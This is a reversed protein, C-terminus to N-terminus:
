RRGSFADSASREVGLGFVPLLGSPVREPVSLLFPDLATGPDTLARMFAVLADQEAATLGLPERLSPHLMETTVQPHRPLAGDNYFAVVQELTEFVGDHMYPPTLEVNRLTPTRFAYRDAPDLTFEERGTDDGRIVEKGPGEQPVGQVVFQFDTFMPGSHCDSCRAKTFFLELGQKQVATLADDDGLVFRDYPSNNTVLEREFAAVAKGYTLRGIVEAGNSVAAEEPFASRFRQVYEPIARLRALVTDVAIDAAEDEPIGFFLDGRMEVRSTIPRRAQEELSRVRGDWFQLGDSSMNGELDINCATNFITPTNRPELSIGLGTLASVSLIREPGLGKGSVGAGFQRRDAFAFAPHHCTGCSVDKEGSLIPDYFLLRGLAIREQRPENDAPYPIPPLTQLGYTERLDEQVVPGTSPDEDDDESCALLAMTLGGVLALSALWTGHSCAALFAFGRGASAPAFTTRKM